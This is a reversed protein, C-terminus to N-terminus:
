LVRKVGSRRKRREVKKRKVIERKKKGRERMCVCINEKEVKGILFNCNAEKRKETQTLSLGEM